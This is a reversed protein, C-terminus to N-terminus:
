PTPIPRLSPVGGIVRRERVQRLGRRLSSLAPTRSFEDLDAVLCGDGSFKGSSAASTGPWEKGPFHWRTRRGPVWRWQVERVEGSLHRAVRVGQRACDKTGKSNMLFRHVALCLGAGVRVMERKRVVGARKGLRDWDAPHAAVAVGHGNAATAFSEDVGTAGGHVIVIDPGYREVLRRIIGAALDHSRCFRDGTVIIRM